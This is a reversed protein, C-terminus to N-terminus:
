SRRAPSVAVTVRVKLSFTSLMLRLASGRRAADIPVSDSSLEESSPVTQVAVRVGGSFVMEGTFMTSIVRKMWMFSGAPLEIVPVTGRPSFKVTSVTRGRSVVLPMVILLLMSFVPSVAVTVTVKSMGTCFMEAATLAALPVSDLQFGLVPPLTQLAVRAGAAFASAAPLRTVTSM